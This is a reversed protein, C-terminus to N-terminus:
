LSNFPLDMKQETVGLVKFDDKIDRKRECQYKYYTHIYRSGSQFNTECNRTFNFM